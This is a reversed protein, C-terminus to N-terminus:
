LPQRRWAYHVRERRNTEVYTRHTEVFGERLYWANAKLNEAATWLHIDGTLQQRAFALLARGVGKGQHSPSVFIQDLHGPPKLALMGLLATEESAVFLSWGAAVEQRLRQKLEDFPLDTENSIGISMWSDYWLTAIADYEDPIAARLIM